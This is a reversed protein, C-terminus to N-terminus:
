TRFTQNISTNITLHNLKGKDFMQFAEKVLILQDEPLFKEENM